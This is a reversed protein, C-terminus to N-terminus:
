VVTTWEKVSGLRAVWREGVGKLGDIGGVNKCLLDLGSLGLHTEGDDGSTEDANSCTSGM